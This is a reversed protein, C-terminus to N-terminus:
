RTVVGRQGAPQVVGLIGLLDMHGLGANGYAGGRAADEGFAQVDDRDAGNWLAFPVPLGSHVDKRMKQSLVPMCNTYHDPVVMAGGLQDTRAQFYTVVPGVIHEDILELSRVKL